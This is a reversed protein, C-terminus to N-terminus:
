PPVAISVAAQLALVDASVSAPVAASPAAPISPTSSFLTTSIPTKSGRKYFVTRSFAAQIATVATSVTAPVAASPAAPM